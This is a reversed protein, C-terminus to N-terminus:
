EGDYFPKIKLPIYLGFTMMCYMNSKNVPVNTNKPAKFGPRSGIELKFSFGQDKPKRLFWGLRWGLNTTEQHKVKYTTGDPNKFDKIGILPAFLVDVYFDSYMMNGRYGWGSVDILLNRIRRFQLGAYVAPIYIGGVQAIDTGLDSITDKFVNGTKAERYTIDNFTLLSDAIKEYNLSNTYQLFGGRLAFLFRCNAPVGGKIYVTTKTNGSTTQSLIIPVNKRKMRNVLVLGLGGEMNFYNRTNENSKRYLNTGFGTRMDFNVLLRKGAMFEARAGWGFSYGNHGNVDIFFPDITASFNKIDFPDDHEYTYSISQANLRNTAAIMILFVATYLNTKM